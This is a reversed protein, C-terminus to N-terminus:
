LLFLTSFPQGYSTGKSMHLVDGNVDRYGFSYKDFGVPTELQGQSMSWGIRVHPQAYSAKPHVNDVKNITVEFYFSGVSISHTARIMHYGKMGIECSLKADDVIKIVKAKDTESLHVSHSPNQDTEEDLSCFCLFFFVCEDVCCNWSFLIDIKSNNMMANM